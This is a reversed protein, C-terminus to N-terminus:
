LGQHDICDSYAAEFMARLRSKNHIIARLEALGDANRSESIWLKLYGGEDYKEAM